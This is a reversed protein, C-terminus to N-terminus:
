SERLGRLALQALVDLLEAQEGVAPQDDFVIHPHQARLQAMLVPLDERAHNGVGLFMPLVRILTAGAQALDNVVSPLDPETLELYACRVQVEPAAAAMRAAVAQIPRHWLPDRSGHAFLVVAKM